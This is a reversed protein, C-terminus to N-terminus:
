SDMTVCAEGHKDFIYEIQPDTPGLNENPVYITAQRMFETYGIKFWKCLVARSGDWETRLLTEPDPFPVTKKAREYKRLYARIRLIDARTVAFTRPDSRLQEHFASYEAYTEEIQRVLDSFMAEVEDQTFDDMDMGENVLKKVLEHAGERAIVRLREIDGLSFESLTRIGFYEGASSEAGDYIYRFTEILDQDSSVVEPALSSYVSAVCCIIISVRM